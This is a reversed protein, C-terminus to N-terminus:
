IDFDYFSAFDIRKACTVASKVPNISELVVEMLYTELVVEMPFTELVVEMPYTELVVEM